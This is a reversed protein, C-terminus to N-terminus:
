AVFYSSDADPKSISEDVFGIKNKDNLTNQMARKWIPYNDGNLITSVFVMRSNDSPHLYYPSDIAISSPIVGGTTLSSQEQSKM